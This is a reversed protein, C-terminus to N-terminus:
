LSLRELARFNGQYHFAELLWCMSRAADITPLACRINHLCVRCAECLESSTYGLGVGSARRRSLESPLIFYPSIGQLGQSFKWVSGVCFTLLSCDCPAENTLASATEEYPHILQGDWDTNGEGGQGITAKLCIKIELKYNMKKRFSFIQFYRQLFILSVAISLFVDEDM